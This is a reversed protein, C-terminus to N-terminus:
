KRGQWWPVSVDTEAFVLASCTTIIQLWPIDAPPSHRRPSRVGPPVGNGLLALAEPVALLSSGPLPQVLAAVM